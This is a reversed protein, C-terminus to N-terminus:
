IAAPNLRSRSVMEKLTLTHATGLHSFRRYCLIYFRVTARSRGFEKELSLYAADAALKRNEPTDGNEGTYATIAKEIIKSLSEGIRLHESLDCPTSRPPVADAGIRNQESVDENSAPSKKQNETM